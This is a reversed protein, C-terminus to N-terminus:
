GIFGEFLHIFIMSSAAVALWTCGGLIIPKIGKTLLEKFKIKFGVGALAITIFLKYSTKFFKELGNVAQFLGATNLVAMLLFGLIFWPFVKFVTKSISTQETNAANNKSQQGITIITFIVALAILM